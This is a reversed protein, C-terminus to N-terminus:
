SNVSITPGIEGSHMEVGSYTGTITSNIYLPPGNGITTNNDYIQWNEYPDYTLRYGNENVYIPYGNRTAGSDTYTGTANADSGGTAIYSVGGGSESSSSSGGSIDSIPKPYIHIRTNGYYEGYGGAGILYYGTSEPTYIFYSGRDEPYYGDVTSTTDDDSALQNNGASDYLRLYTDFYGTQSMQYTVGASLGVRIYVKYGSYDGTNFETTHCGNTNGISNDIHYEWIYPDAQTGSGDSQGGGGLGLNYQIDCASMIYAALGEVKIGSPVTEGNLQENIASIIATKANSIRELESEISM